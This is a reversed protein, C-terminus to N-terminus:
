TTEDAVGRPLRYRASPGRPDPLVRAPTEERFRQFEQYTMQPPRFRRTAMGNAGLWERVAKEWRQAARHYRPGAVTSIAARRAEPSPWAAFDELDHPLPPGDAPTDWERFRFRELWAPREDREVVPAAPRRRRAM